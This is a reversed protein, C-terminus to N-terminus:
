LRRGMEVFGCTWDSVVLWIVVGVIKLGLGVLFEHGGRLLLLARANPLRYCAMILRGRPGFSKKMIGHFDLVAM